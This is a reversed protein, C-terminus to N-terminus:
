TSSSNRTGLAMAQVHALAASALGPPYYGGELSSVVRGKAHKEALAVVRDTLGSFTSDEWGLDGLPDRLRADFGASVLVFEPAFADLAPAALEDWAAM